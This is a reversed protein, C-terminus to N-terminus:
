KEKGKIVEVEVPRDAKKINESLMRIDEYLIEVSSSLRLTDGPRYEEIREADIEAVLQKHLVGSYIQGEFCNLVFRVIANCLPETLIIGDKKM